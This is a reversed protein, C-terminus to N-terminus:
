DLIEAYLATLSRAETDFDLGELFARRGAAGMAAARDPNALLHSLAHAHAAADAAPVIIGCGAARVIASTRGLDSTVVPRGAAMAEILKTPVARDYNGHRQLPIWAVAADALLGPVASHDVVGLHEINGPLEGPDGPGALVLRAGPVEVMPFATRMLELGRLPGIGGVYLVVPEGSPPAPEPFSDSWPSNAVSVARAGDAAFRAALDENSTVVAALRRGALREVREAAVAIPLRLASPLWAKTRATQGLYEHVDYIVPAGTSRSLWLAAPLLEPDHVHYLDAGRRRAEAMLRWGALPRTARTLRRAPAAVTARAGARALARGEKHFIRVDRPRHVTTLHMVRRGDLRGGAPLPDAHGAPGLRAGDRGAEEILDSWLHRWAPGFRDAITTTRWMLAVRGGSRRVRELLGLARERAADPDGACEAALSADGAALPISLLDAPRDDDILYPRHPRALGTAFGSVEGFVPDCMYAAGAAELRRLTEQHGLRLAPLHVGQLPGDEGRLEALEEALRWWDEAAGASASLAVEGGGARVAAALRRAREPAIGAAPLFVTSRMGRRWTTELVDPLNDWPDPGILSRALVRAGRGRALAALRAPTRMRLDDVVHTLAISWAAPPRLRLGARLADLYTEVAPDDVSLGAIQGFAGASLPMRGLRDRVPVHHEDWRSLLFFAGAVIDGPIAEGPHTPPFLLDLGRARHVARSPFPDTGEFFAQARGDAPIWIGAGPREPAYTIDAEGDTWTARAGLAGAFTELVYRARPTFAPRPCEVRIRLVEPVPM